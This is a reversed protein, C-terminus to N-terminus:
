INNDSTVIECRLHCIGNSNCACFYFNLTKCSLRELYMEFWLLLKINIANQTNINSGMQVEEDRINRNGVGGGGYPIAFADVTCYNEM